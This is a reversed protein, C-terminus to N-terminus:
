RNLLPHWRESLKDGFNYGFQKLYHVNPDSFNPAYVSTSHTYVIMLYRQGSHKSLEHFDVVVDAAFFVGSGAKNSFLSIQKDNNEGEKLCLMLGGLIGQMCSMEILTKSPLYPDDGAVILQDYAIRLPKQEILEAAVDALYRSLAIKRGIDSDRWLDRGSHFFDIPMQELFKKAVKLRAAMIADISAQLAQLQEEDLVDDFEILKNKRFFDRHESALAFKM